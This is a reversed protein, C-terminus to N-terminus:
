GNRQQSCWNSDVLVKIGRVVRGWGGTKYDQPGKNLDWGLCLVNKTRKWQKIFERFDTEREEGETPASGCKIM